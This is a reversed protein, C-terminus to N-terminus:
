HFCDKFVTTESWVNFGHDMICIIDCAWIEWPAEFYGSIGGFHPIRIKPNKLKTENIKNYCM